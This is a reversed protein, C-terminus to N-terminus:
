APPSPAVPQGLVLLCLSKECIERLLRPQLTGHKSFDGLPGGMDLLLFKFALTGPNTKGRTMKELTFVLSRLNSDRRSKIEALVRELSFGNGLNEYILQGVEGALKRYACLVEKLAMQEAHLDFEWVVASGAKVVRQLLQPDLGFLPLALHGSLMLARLDTLPIEREAEFLLRRAVEDLIEPLYVAIVEGRRVFDGVLSHTLVIERVSIVRERVLWSYTSSPLYFPRGVLRKAAELSEPSQLVSVDCVAGM